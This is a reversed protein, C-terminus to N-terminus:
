SIWKMSRSTQIYVGGQLIAVDVCQIMCPPSTRLTGCVCGCRHAIGHGAHGPGRRGHGAHGPARSRPGQAQPPGQGAVHVTGGGGYSLGYTFQTYRVPLPARVPKLHTAACEPPPIDHSVDRSLDSVVEGRWFPMQYDQM